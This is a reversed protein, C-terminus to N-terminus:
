EPSILLFTSIIVRVLRCELHSLIDKFRIQHDESLVKKTKIAILMSIDYWFDTLLKSIKDWHDNFQQETMDRKDRSMHFMDYSWDRLNGILSSEKLTDVVGVDTECLM